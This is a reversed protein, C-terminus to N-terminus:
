KTFSTGYVKRRLVNIGRAVQYFITSGAFFFADLRYGALPYTLFYLARGIKTDWGVYITRGKIRGEAAQYIVEAVDKPNNGFKERWWRTISEAAEIESKSNGETWVGSDINTKTNGPQVDVLRVNDRKMWDKAVGRIVKSLRMKGRQYEIHHIDPFLYKASTINIITGGGNNRMFKPAEAMIIIPAWLNVQDMERWEKPPEKNKDWLSKPKGKYMVGAANVITDIRGSETAAKQLMGKLQDRDRVDVLLPVVNPYESQPFIIQVSPNIDTAYIPNYKPDHSFRRAAELGIGSASGTIIATKREIM